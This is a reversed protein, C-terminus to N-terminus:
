RRASHSAATTPQTRANPQSRGPPLIAPHRSLSNVPSARRRDSAAPAARRNRSRRRAPATSEQSEGGSGPMRLSVASTGKRPILCNTVLVNHVDRGDNEIEAVHQTEETMAFGGLLQGHVARQWRIINQRMIEIRLQLVIELRATDTEGGEPVNHALAAPHRRAVLLEIQRNRIHERGVVLNAAQYRLQLRAIAQHQQAVGVLQAGAVEATLEGIRQGVEVGEDKRVLDAHALRTRVNVSMTMLDGAGPRRLTQEEIIQRGVDLGSAGAAPVADDIMGSEIQAVFEVSQPDFNQVGGGGGGGGGWG